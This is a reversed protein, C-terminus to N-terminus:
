KKTLVFPGNRKVDIGNAVIKQYKCPHQRQISVWMVM